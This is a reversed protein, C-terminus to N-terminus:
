NPVALAPNSPTSSAATARSSIFRRALRRLAAQAPPELLHSMGYAFAILLGIMAPLIFAFTPLLDHRFPLQAGIMWMAMRPMFPHFLYISYSVTGITVLPLSALVRNIRSGTDAGNFMVVAFLAGTVLRYTPAGMWQLYP